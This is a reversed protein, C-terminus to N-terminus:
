GRFDVVAGPLLRPRLTISGELAIEIVVRFAEVLARSCRSGRGRDPDVQGVLSCLFLGRSAMGVRARDDIARALRLQANFADGAMEAIEELRESLDVVDAHM